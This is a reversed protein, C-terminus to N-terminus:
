RRDRGERGVVLMLGVRVVGLVDLQVRDPHQGLQGDDRGVRVLLADPLGEQVGVVRQAEDVVEEFEVEPHEALQVLDIRHDRAGELAQQDQVLVM